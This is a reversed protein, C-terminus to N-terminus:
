WLTDETRTYETVLGLTPDYPGLWVPLEPISADIWQSHKELQHRYISVTYPQLRRYQERTPALGAKIRARIESLLPEVADRRWSAVVVPATNDQIFRYRKAVEPYDFDERKGEVNYKDLAVADYLRKFYREFLAPNDPDLGGEQILSAADQTATAYAGPPSKGEVPDFVIMRGLDLRGERNCRGAAQVIRDLPGIARMVVPFDIDVGAEIVQTSVVRVVDGTLLRHKISAIVELRHAGCLSTSLHLAREDGLAQLLKIADSKTNVVALAQRHKLMDAAVEDWPKRGDPWQYEVRRLERFWRAADPIIERINRLGDFQKNEHLAPQTATSLVVTAGYHEVLQRIAEITPKLLELPLTQAEDIVIVSRALNHIKRCRSPHNSFLSEFLQNTTTVILPADWNETALDLRKGLTDQEEGTLDGTAEGTERVASHHELVCEPGFVERFARATQDIISTYPIAVVVRRLDHKLAQRLAFAMSSLTKGAGTPATLRFIGPDEEASKRCAELVERRVRNVKTADVRATLSQLVTELKDLMAALSPKVARIDGKEPQYHQETDLRDADVLASLLFRLAFESSSEDKLIATFEQRASALVEAPESNEIAKWLELAEKIEKQKPYDSYLRQFDAKSQLGSHHAAIVMALPPLVDARVAGTPSHKPGKHGLTKGESAAQDAEKLYAQFDPHLKGIDHWLGLLHGCSSFGFEATFERCLEAVGTLHDGLRHPEGAPNKGHALAIGLGDKRRM